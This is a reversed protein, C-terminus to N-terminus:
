YVPLTAPNFSDWNIFRRTLNPLYTKYFSYDWVHREKFFLDEQVDFTKLLYSQLLIDIKRSDVLKLALITPRVDKEYKNQILGKMSEYSEQLLERTLLKNQRMMCQYSASLFYFDSYHNYCFIDFFGNAKKMREALKVSYYPDRFIPKIDPESNKIKELEALCGVIDFCKLGSLESKIKALVPAELVKKRLNLFQYFPESEKFPKFNQRNQEACATNCHYIDTLFEAIMSKLADYVVEFPKGGTSNVGALNREADWQQFTIDKRILAAVIARAGQSDKHFYSSRLAKYVVEHLFTIYRSNLSHLPNYMLREDVHLKVNNESMIHMAITAIVCNASDYRGILNYDDVPELGDPHADAPLVLFDNLSKNFKEWLRPELDKIRNIVRQVYHHNSENEKPLILEPVERNTIGRPHRAEVLDLIEISTISKIDANQIAGNIIKDESNRQRIRAAIAPDNFCVLGNGGGGGENGAAGAFQTLSVILCFITYKM